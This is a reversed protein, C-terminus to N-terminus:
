EVASAAKGDSLSSASGDTDDASCATSEVIPPNVTRGAAISRKYGAIIEKLSPLQQFRKTRMLPQDVDEFTGIDFTDFTDFSEVAMDNAECSVTVVNSSM